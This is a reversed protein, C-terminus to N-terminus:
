IEARTGYSSAILAQILFHTVAGLAALGRWWTLM